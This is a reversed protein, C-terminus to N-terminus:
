NLNYLNSSFSTLKNCNSFMFFTNYVSPLNINWTTLSFCSSFMNRGQTLSDLPYNWSTLYQANSLMFQGFSIGNFNCNTLSSINNSGNQFLSTADGVDDNKLYQFTIDAGSQTNVYFGINYM